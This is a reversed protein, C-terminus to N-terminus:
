YSHLQLKLAEGHTTIVEELRKRMGLACDLFTKAALSNWVRKIKRELGSVTSPPKPLNVKDQMISWINEMWNLDPSNAPWEGKPGCSIFAPVNELLWKTTLAASHPTAGDQQFTWRRVKATKFIRNMGPLAKDLITRYKAGNMNGKYAYLKTRGVSSAGAWVRITPAHDVHERPTIIDGKRIWVVDNQTNPVHFLTFETEDTM